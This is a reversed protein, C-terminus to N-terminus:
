CFRGWDTTLTLTICYIYSCCVLKQAQAKQLSIDDFEPMEHCDHMPGEHKEALVQKLQNFTAYPNINGDDDTYVPLHYAYVPLHYTYVPLHYTYVPLLYIIHIYLYIIRIM